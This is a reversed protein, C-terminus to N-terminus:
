DEEQQGRKHHPAEYRNGNQTAVVAHCMALAQGMNKFSHICGIKHLPSSCAVLANLRFGGARLACFTLALSM